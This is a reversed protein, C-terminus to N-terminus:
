SGGGIHMSAIIYDLCPQVKEKIDLEGAQNIINAEAGRYLKVGYLTRPLCSLNSFHYHHCGSPMAPGHDTIGMGLLGKDAAARAMEAITSYAHGSSISHTHLDAVIRM